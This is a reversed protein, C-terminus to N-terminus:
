DTLPRIKINRFAVASRHYQLLLPSAFPADIPAEVVKVGNLWHELRDKTLVLRLQNWEGIPKAAQESPALMSYLAGSRQKPDFKAGPDGDNDAIQYEFATAGAAGTTSFLRYKIGSNADKAVRFEARLEYTTFSEKTRIDAGNADVVTHLTGDDIHWVATVPKGNLTIWGATTKGDFLARWGQAREEATVVGDSSIAEPPGVDFFDPSPTLAEQRTEIKWTGQKRVVALMLTGADFPSKAAPDRWCSFVLAIDPTLFQISRILTARGRPLAPASQALRDLTPKTRRMTHDAGVFRVNESLLVRIQVNDGKRVADLFAEVTQRVETEATHQAEKTAFQPLAPLSCLLCISVALLFRRM